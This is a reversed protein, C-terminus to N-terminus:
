AFEAVSVLAWVESESGAVSALVSALALALASVSVSVSVELERGSIPIAACKAPRATWQNSVGPRREESSSISCAAMVSACDTRSDASIRM